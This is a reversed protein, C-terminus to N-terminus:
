KILIIKLSLFLIPLSHVNLYDSYLSNQQAVKRQWLQSIMEWSRWENFQNNGWSCYATWFLYVFLFVWALYFLDGKSNNTIITWLVGLIYATATRKLQRVTKFYNRIVSSVMYKTCLIQLTRESESNFPKKERRIIGQFKRISSLFWYGCVVIILMFYLLSSCSVMARLIWYYCICWPLLRVAM